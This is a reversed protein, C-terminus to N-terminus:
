FYRFSNRQYFNQQSPVVTELNKLFMEYRFCKSFCHGSKFHKTKNQAQRTNHQTTNYQGQRNHQTTNHKKFAHNITKHQTTNHQRVNYQITKYQIPRLTSNHKKQTRKLQDTKNTKHKQQTGSNQGERTNHQTRNQSLTIPYSIQM